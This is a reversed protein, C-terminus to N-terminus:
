RAGCRESGSFGWRWPELAELTGLDDSVGCGLKMRSIKAGIWAATEKLVSSGQGVREALGELVAHDSEIEELLRGAFEGLLEGTNQNRLPTLLEIAAAAGALHDQLYTALPDHTM